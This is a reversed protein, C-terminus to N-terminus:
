PQPNDEADDKYFAVDPNIKKVADIFEEHLEPSIVVAAYSNKAFEMVLRNGKEILTLSLVEKLDNKTRVFGFSLYLYDDKITYRSCLMVSLVLISLALCIVALVIYSITKALLDDVNIASYVNFYIGVLSLALIVSLMIWVAISHVYRFKKM